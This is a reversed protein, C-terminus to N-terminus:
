PWHIKISKSINQDLIVNQKHIIYKLNLKWAKKKERDRARERARRGGKVAQWANSTSVCMRESSTIVNNTNNSYYLVSTTPNNIWISPDQTKQIHPKGHIQLM